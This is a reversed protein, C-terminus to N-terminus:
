AFAQQLSFGQILNSPENGTLIAVCADYSRILPQHTGSCESYSKVEEKVHAQHPVGMGWQSIPNRLGGARVM